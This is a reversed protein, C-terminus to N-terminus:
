IASSPGGKTNYPGMRGENVLFLQVVGTQTPGRGVFSEPDTCAKCLRIQPKMERMLLLYWLRLFKSM